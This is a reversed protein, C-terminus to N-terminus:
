NKISDDEKMEQWYVDSLTKDAKCKGCVCKARSIRISKTTCHCHTCYSIEM